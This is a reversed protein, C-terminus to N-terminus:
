KKKIRESVFTHCVGHLKTAFNTKKSLGGMILLNCACRVDGGRKFFAVGAFIKVCMLCSKRVM